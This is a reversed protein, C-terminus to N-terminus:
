GSRRPPHAQRRAHGRSQPRHQPGLVRLRRRGNTARTDFREDRVGEQNPPEVLATLAPASCLVAAPPATALEWHQEAPPQAFEPPRLRRFRWLPAGTGLLCLGGVILSTVLDIAHYTIICGAASDPAAGILGLALIGFFHFTGVNGPASPVMAGVAAVGMVMPAVGLAFRIDFAQAAVWLSVAISLWLLLTLILFAALHGLTRFVFIGQCLKDLLSVPGDGFRARLRDTLRRTWEAPVCSRAILPLALLAIAILGVTWGAARISNPLGNVFVFTGALALAFLVLLDAARTIVVVGLSELRSRDILRGLAHAGFAEGLKGPLCNGAATGIGAAYFLNALTAQPVGILIVRWRAARLLPSLLLVLPVLALRTWDAARMAALAAPWDVKRFM